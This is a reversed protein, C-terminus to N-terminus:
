PNYTLFDCYQCELVHGVTAFGFDGGSMIGRGYDIGAVAVLEWLAGM